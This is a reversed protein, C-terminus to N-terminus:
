RMMMGKWSEQMYESMAKESWMYAYFWKPNAKTKRYLKMKYELKTNWQM